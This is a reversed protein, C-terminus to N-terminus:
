YATSLIERCVCVCQQLIQMVCMIPACINTVNEVRKIFLPLWAVLHGMLWQEAEQLAACLPINNQQQQKTTYLIHLVDLEYPLFDEPISGEQPVCLGLEHMLDRMQLASQGMLIGAEELYVSAFPPAIVHEPGIFLRNFEYEVQQWDAQGCEKDSLMGYNQPLACFAKQMEMASRAMFFDRLTLIADWFQSRHQLHMNM